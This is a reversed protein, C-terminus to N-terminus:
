DFKLDLVNYTVVGLILMVVVFIGAAISWNKQRKDFESATGKYNKWAYENGMLGLIVNIIIALWSIFPLLAILPWYIGHCVAWLWGFVFAGWNWKDLCAPRGLLGGSSSRRTEGGNDVYNQQKQRPIALLPIVDDFNLVYKTSLTIYDTPKVQCVADKYKVGNVYTGNKSHDKLTYVNGDYSITAHKGGVTLIGKAVVLDAELSRGVVISKM